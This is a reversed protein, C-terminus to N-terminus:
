KRTELWTLYKDFLAQHEEKKGFFVHGGAMKISFNKDNPMGITGVYKFQVLSDTMYEDSSSLMFVDDLANIRALQESNM